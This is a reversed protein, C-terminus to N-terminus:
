HSFRCLLWRHTRSLVLPTRYVKFPPCFKSPKPATAVIAFAFALLGFIPRGLDECGDREIMDILPVSSM